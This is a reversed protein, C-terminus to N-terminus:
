HRNVPFLSLVYQHREKLVDLDTKRRTEIRRAPYHRSCLLTLKNQNLLSKVCKEHAVRKAEYSGAPYYQREVPSPMPHRPVLDLKSLNTLLPRDSIDLASFQQKFFSSVASSKMIYWWYAFSEFQMVRGFNESDSAM